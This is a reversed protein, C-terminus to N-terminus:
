SIIDELVFWPEEYNVNLKIWYVTYYTQIMIMTVNM